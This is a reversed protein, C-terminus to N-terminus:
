YGAEDEEGPGDVDGCLYLCYRLDDLPVDGNKGDFSGRELELGKKKGGRRGDFCLLSTKGIVVGYDYKL